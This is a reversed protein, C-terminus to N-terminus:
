RARAMWQERSQGWVDIVKDDFPVPLHDQRLLTSGLKKAVQQSGVNAPDITHIVESWGLTEFAWDITAIAAETALGRGWTERTLSWGVETGPWGHPQWPGIRGIWRGSAKDIVSFMSYGDLAWAGAVSMMARWAQPPAQLGGIYRATEEDAMMAAWPEFDERATPRLILRATELTPGPAIM